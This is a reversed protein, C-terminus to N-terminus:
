IQVEAGAFVLVKKMVQYSRLPIGSQLSKSCHDVVINDMVSISFAPEKWYQMLSFGM